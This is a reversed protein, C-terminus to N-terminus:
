KCFDNIDELFSGKNDTASKIQNPKIAVVEEPHIKRGGSGNDTISEPDYQSEDLLSPILSYDHYTVAGDYGEKILEECPVEEIDYEDDFYKPKRINLFFSYVHGPELTPPNKFEESNRKKVWEEMKKRYEATKLSYTSALHEDATFYFGSTRMMSNKGLHEEKFCNSELEHETGHFCVLPEGNKDIIKSFNEEKNAFDGFWKKFSSTRVQLWQNETLLSKEGNPALAYMFEGDPSYKIQGAKQALNKILEIEKAYSEEDFIALNTQEINMSLVHTM